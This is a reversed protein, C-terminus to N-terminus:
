GPPPDRLAQSLFEQELPTLDFELAAQDLVTSLPLNPQERRRDSVWALAHRLSQGSPALDWGMIALSHERSRANGLTAKHHPGLARNLKRLDQM